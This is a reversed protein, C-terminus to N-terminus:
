NKRQLEFIFHIILVLLGGLLFWLAVSSQYWPTNTVANIGASVHSAASTVNDTISNAFASLNQSINQTANEATTIAAEMLPQVGGVVKQAADAAPPTMAVIGEGTNDLMRSSTVMAGKQVVSNQLLAIIASVGIIGLFAPIFRRLTAMVKDTRAQTPAIIILKNTLTYHNVEKGKPSYHYEDAKVLNAKLLNQMNYHVTSLPLGLAKAMDSETLGKNNKGLFDLIRRCSENSIVEALKKAKNEELSVLLFSEEAM